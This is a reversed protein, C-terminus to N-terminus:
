RLKKLLKSIQATLREQERRGQRIAKEVRRGLDAYATRLSRVSASETPAEKPQEAKKPEAAPRPKQHDIKKRDSFATQVDETLDWADGPYPAVATWGRESRLREAFQDTVEDEGHTVFVRRVGQVGSAWAALGDNDAHGSIGALTMIEAKVTVTEGFLSIKDIGDVLLRGLTGRSQYGVFLITCEPRWLNHKLHHRIRGADCMGSASIIVKPVSDANIMKSEESTVAIKLGPFQLPNGGSRVMEQVQASCSSTNSQFISTAEIALPSDVYVPFHEYSRLLGAEKIQRIYYLIEQTRGVAFSPIVVNGGRAFTRQLIQALSLVFDPKPGHSRDGYTSEMVLYDTYDVSEPANLIPQGSNGIDGSFALRTTKGDETISLVIAASGLLHGVDIMHATIGELVSFEKRYPCSVFLTGTREADETTYLPEVDPKGSRRAKRTKWEADSEQIHAADLLMIRALDCTAETAFIPGKFGQKVLLPLWGTHDIHAHTVLVADIEGAPVPLDPNEYINFGQEMGYDILLKKGCAELYYRSGTVEHAAGLFTLRM